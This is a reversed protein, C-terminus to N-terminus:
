LEKREGEKEARQVKQDGTVFCPTWIARREEDRMDAGRADGGGHEGSRWGPEHGWRLADPKGERWM